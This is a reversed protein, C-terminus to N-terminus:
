CQAWGSIWGCPQPASQPSHSKMKSPSTVARSTAIGNGGAATINSTGGSRASSTPLPATMKASAAPTPAIMKVAPTNISRVSASPAVLKQQAEADGSSASALLLASLGSLAVAKKDM